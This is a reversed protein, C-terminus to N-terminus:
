SSPPTLGKSRMVDAYMNVVNRAYGDESLDATLHQSAKITENKQALVQHVLPALPTNPDWAVGVGYEELHPLAGVEPTVIV